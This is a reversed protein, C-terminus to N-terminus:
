LDRRRPRRLGEWLSRLGIPRPPDLLWTLPLSALAGDRWMAALPRLGRPGTNLSEIARIISGERAIAESVTRADTGLHEALLTERVSRITMRTDDDQAEIAVDLESDLGISRNNLNSSGVRIFDDDVIILKSHIKIECEGDRGPVAAYYVRLRGHKDRRRLRRLLRNRNKGMVFRELKGPSQETLVIVIEPGEPAQLSEALRREVVWATLYQAEIYLSRRALAIADLTLMAAEGVPPLDGYEPNTCAIGVAVNRFQADLEPPWTIESGSLPAVFEETANQWRRRAVDAIAQAAEGDVVIQIDHVPPYKSGDPNVRHPDDARHEPTDWREITLDMGGAFAVADDICVIKQHHSGYIPHKSDLRVHIRPHDQWDAGFLMPMAAGPGHVIGLSWVLIRVQLGPEAEVRARLLEGLTPSGPRDPTLSFGADFDWGVILISRRARVITQELWYFYAAGDILVAAREATAVTPCNRGVTLFRLPSRSKGPRTAPGHERTAPSNERAMPGAADLSAISNM